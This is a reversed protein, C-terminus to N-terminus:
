QGIGDGVRLVQASRDDLLQRVAEDSLDDGLLPCFWPFSAPSGPHKWLDGLHPGARVHSKVPLDAARPATM